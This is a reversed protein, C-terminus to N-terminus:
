FTKQSNWLCKVFGESCTATGSQIYINHFLQARNLSTCLESLVTLEIAYNKTPSKKFDTRCRYKGRDAESVREIALRAKEPSAAKPGSPGSVGGGPPVRMVARPGFVDQASVLVCKDGM